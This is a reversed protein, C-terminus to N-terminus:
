CARVEDRERGANIHDLRGDANGAALGGVDRRFPLFSAGDAKEIRGTAPDGGYATHFLGGLDGAYLFDGKGFFLAVGERSDSATGVTDAEDNRWGFRCFTGDFDTFFGQVLHTDRYSRYILCWIWSTGCECTLM